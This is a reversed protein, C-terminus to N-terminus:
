APCEAKREAYPDVGMAELAAAARARMEIPTWRSGNAIEVLADVARRYTTSAVVEGSGDCVLCPRNRGTDRGYQDLRKLTGRRNCVVCGHETLSM